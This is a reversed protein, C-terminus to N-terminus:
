EDELRPEAKGIETCAVECLEANEIAVGAEDKGAAFHPVKPIDSSFNEVAFSIM